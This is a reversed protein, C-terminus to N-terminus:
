RRGRCRRTMQDKETGAQKQASRVSLNDKIRGIHHNYAFRRAGACMFLRRSQELNPELAFKFAVPRTLAAGNASVLQEDRKDKKAWPM